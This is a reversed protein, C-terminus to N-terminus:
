KKLNCGITGEGAGLSFFGLAALQQCLSSATWCAQQHWSSGIGVAPPPHYHCCSNGTCNVIGAAVVVKRQCHCCNVDALRNYTLKQSCSIEIGAAAGSSEQMTHYIFPDMVSCQGESGTEIINSSRAAILDSIKKFDYMQTSGQRKHVQLMKLRLSFGSLAVLLPACHTLSM